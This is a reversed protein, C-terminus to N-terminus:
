NLRITTANVREAWRVDGIMICDSGGRIQVGILGEIPRGPEWNDILLSQQSAPGGNKRAVLFIKVKGRGAHRVDTIRADIAATHKIRSRRM